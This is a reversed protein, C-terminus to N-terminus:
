RYTFDVDVREVLKYNRRVAESTGEVLGHYAEGRNVWFPEVPLDLVAAKTGRTGREGLPDAAYGRVTLYFKNRRFQAPDLGTDIGTGRAKLAPTLPDAAPSNQDARFALVYKGDPYLTVSVKSVTCHDVRVVQDLLTFTAASTAPPPVPTTTTERATTTTQVTGCRGATTRTTTTERTATTTPLPGPPPPALPDTETGVTLRPLGTATVTPKPQTTTSTPQYPYSPIGPLPQPKARLTPWEAWVVGGTALLAGLAIRRRWNGM